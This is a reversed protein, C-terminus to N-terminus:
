CYTAAPPFAMATPRAGVSSAFPCLAASIADSERWNNSLEVDSGPQPRIPERLPAGCLREGRVKLEIAVVIINAENAALQGGCVDVEDGIRRIMWDTHPRGERGRVREALAPIGIGPSSNGSEGVGARGRDRHVQRSVFRRNEDEAIRRRAYGRDVARPAWIASRLASQFTVKVAVFLDM